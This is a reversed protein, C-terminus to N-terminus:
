RLPKSWADIHAAVTRTIAEPVGVENAHRPWGDVADLVQEVIRSAGPVGFRDAVSDVDDRDIGITKGNV